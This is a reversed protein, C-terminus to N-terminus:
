ILRNIVITVILGLITFALAFGAGYQMMDFKNGQRKRALFVGYVAGLFAAALIIM